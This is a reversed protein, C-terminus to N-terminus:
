LTIGGCFGPIWTSVSSTVDLEHEDVVKWLMGAL